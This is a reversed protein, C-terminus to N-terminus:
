NVMKEAMKMAEYANLVGGSVSLQSFKGKPRKESELDPILVKGKKIKKSSSLLIEKLQVASLEPYYSWVLAAVGTVIPSSLSTGDSMSYLNEPELSIIDKGPAFIDVYKNSYNSYSAKLEKNM